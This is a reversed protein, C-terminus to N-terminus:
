FVVVLSLVTLYHFLIATTWAGYGDAGVLLPAVIGHVASGELRKQGDLFATHINDALTNIAKTVQNNDMNADAAAISAEFLEKSKTLNLSSQDFHKMM